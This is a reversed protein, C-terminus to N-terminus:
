GHLMLSNLPYLPGLRVIGGYTDADRYTIWRQRDSGVGAFSHDEGGRWISDAWRLWFPSPWTGTTLNIFLDPKIKRLDDILAIAAAFDSDFESGPTVKDPSGTGDFKFQNIGDERLLKETVSKFLAFYKPDSLAIGQEDVAYGDARAAALRRKRPPGYGGWPSLWIGPAAGFKAAENKLPVFGDPFGSNFQWLHDPDDWGDDFLFSDMTVGRKRMLQEGFADIERLAEAQTYRNFYGIDYWSNYHLFTRYPHARQDEIYALFGRRLQNESAVGFVASYEVPVDARLPLERRLSMTAHGAIVRAQAMPFEFGFFEDGLVIPSGDATGEVRAGPLQLDILSVAALDLDRSPQLRVVERVYNAGDRLSARWRVTLGQAADSLVAKLAVGKRRDAARSSNPQPTINECTIKGSLKLASSLIADGKRPKLSFLEGQLARTNGTFRNDFAAPRLAGAKADMEFRLALNDLQAVGNQVTCHAAGPDRPLWPPAGSAASMIFLLPLAIRAANVATGSAVSDADDRAPSVNRLTRRVPQLSSRPHATLQIASSTRGAEALVFHFAEAGGTKGDQRDDQNGRGPASGGDALLRAGNGCRFQITRQRRLVALLGRHQGAAAEPAQLPHELVDLAHRVHGRTIGAAACARRLVLADALAIGSVCFRHTDFEIGCLHAISLQQAHIERDRGVRRLQVPLARVGARLIASH